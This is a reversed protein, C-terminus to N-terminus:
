QDTIAVLCGGGGYGGSYGGASGGTVWTPAGGGGGCAAGNNGNVNTGVAAGGLGWPSNMGAIPTAGGAPALSVSSTMLSINASPAVTIQSANVNAISAAVANGSASGNGKQGGNFNVGSIATAGGSNGNNNGAAGGLGPIGLHYLLTAGVTQQTYQLCAFSGASGGAAAANNVNSVGGAGGGGGVGCMRFRPQTITYTGSWNGSGVTFTASTDSGTSSSVAVPNPPPSNCIGPTLVTVGAAQIVGASANTVTLQAHTTCGDNLTLVDGNVNTTGGFTVTPAAGLGATLQTQTGPTSLLSYSDGNNPGNPDCWGQFTAKGTSNFTVVIATASTTWSAISPGTINKLMCSPPDAYPTHFTFTCGTASSGTTIVFNADTSGSPFPSSVGTGCSSLDGVVPQSWPVGSLYVQNYSTSDVSLWGSPLNGSSVYPSNITIRQTGPGVLYHPTAAATGSTDLATLNGRAGLVVTGTVTITTTGVNERTVETTSPATLTVQNASSTASIGFGSLTTNANVAAALGTAISTTTDNAVVTYTIEIPSGTLGGDTFILSVTDGPVPAGAITAVKGGGSSTIGGTSAFSTTVTINTPWHVSLVNASVGCSIHAVVEDPDVNIQRCLSNAVTTTTDGSVALYSYTKPSNTLSASTITVSASAGAGPNPTGAYAIVSPVASQGQLYVAAVTPHSATVGILKIAQGQEDSVCTTYAACQTNFINATGSNLLRIGTGTMIGNSATNHWEFFSDSMQFSGAQSVQFGHDYMFAVVNHFVGGSGTEHLRFGVGPRSNAGNPFGLSVGLSYFPEFWVDDLGFSAGAGTIDFGNYCDGRVRDIKFEGAQAAICTNSGLLFVDHIYNRGGSKPITILASTETGWQTVAAIAQANTPNIILGERKVALHELSAAYGNLLVTYSPNIIISSPVTSTISTGKQMPSGEGEVTVNQPIVLNASHVLVSHGQSIIAKGGNTLTALAANAAVADDNAGDAVVGHGPFRIVEYFRSDNAAAGPLGGDDIESNDSWVAIHGPVIPVPKSKQKVYQASVDATSALGCVLILLALVFRKLM